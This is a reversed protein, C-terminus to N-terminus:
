FFFCRYVFIKLFFFIKLVELMGRRFGRFCRWISRFEIKETKVERDFLSKSEIMLTYIWVIKDEDIIVINGYYKNWENM